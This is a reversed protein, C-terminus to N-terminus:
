DVKLEYKLSIIIDLRGNMKGMNIYCLYKVMFKDQFEM